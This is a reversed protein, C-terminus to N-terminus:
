EILLVITVNKSSASAVTQGEHEQVAGNLDVSGEQLFILWCGEYWQWCCLVVATGFIKENHFIHFLSLSAPLVYRFAGVLLYGGDIYGTALGTVTYLFCPSLV